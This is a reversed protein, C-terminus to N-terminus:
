CKTKQGWAGGLAQSGHPGGPSSSLEKSLYCGTVLIACSVAFSFTGFQAHLGLGTVLIFWKDTMEEDASVGKM